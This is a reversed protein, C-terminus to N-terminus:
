PLLPLITKEITNDKVLRIHDTGVPVLVQIDEADYYIRNNQYNNTDM